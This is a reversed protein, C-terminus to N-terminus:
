VGFQRLHHDCHKYVFQGLQERTMNGFFWHMFNDKSFTEYREILAIWKAKEIEFNEINETVKFQSSTPANKGITSHEDNLIAKIAKQGVLRGLLSRKVKINGFYYDECLACHRIMQAVNMKGWLPKSRRTLVNIRDIVEKRIAKDFISKM